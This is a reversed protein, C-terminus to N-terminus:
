IDDLEDPYTKIFSSNVTATNKAGRKRWISFFHIVHPDNVNLINSRIYLLWLLSMCPPQREAARKEEEPPRTSIHRIPQGIPLDM